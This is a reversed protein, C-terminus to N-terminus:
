ALERHIILALEEAAQDIEERNPVEVLIRVVPETGSFRLFVRGKDALKEEVRKLLADLGKVEQLSKRKSVRVNRLVQPVVTMLKRLESLKKGSEMMVALIRLAAVM